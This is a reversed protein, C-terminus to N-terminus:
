YRRVAPDIHRSWADIGGAMNLASIGQAQLFRVVQASRSGHHCYVIVPQDTPIEDLRQMTQAMPIHLAGDIRCYAWENEERCDILAVPDASDLKAKVDHVTIDM